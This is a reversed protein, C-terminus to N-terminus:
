RVRVTFPFLVSLLITIGALLTMTWAFGLRDGPSSEFVADDGSAIDGVLLAGLIPGFVKGANYAANFLSSVKGSNDDSEKESKATTQSEQDDETFVEVGDGDTTNKPAMLRLMLPLVCVIMPAQGIGQLLHGLLVVFWTWGRKLNSQGGLAAVLVPSPTACLTGASFVLGGVSLCMPLSLGLRGLMVDSVLPAFLSYSLAQVMLAWGVTDESADLLWELQHSIFPLFAALTFAALLAMVATLLMSPSWLSVAPKEEAEAQSPLLTSTLDDEDHNNISPGEVEVEGEQEGEVEHSNAISGISRTEESATCRRELLRKKLVHLAFFVPLILVLTAASVAMYPWVFSDGAHTYVNGGVVPGIMYGIGSSLELVGLVRTADQPFWEAACAYTAGGAFAYAAGQLSRSVFLQWLSHESLGFFVTSLTLALTGGSLLLMRSIKPHDLLYGVPAGLVVTMLSYIAFLWAVANASVGYNSTLHKSMYPLHVAEFVSWALPVFSLLLLVTWELKDM